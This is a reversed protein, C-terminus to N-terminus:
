IFPAHWSGDPDVFHPVTPPANLLGAFRQDAPHPAVVPAALAAAAAIVVLLLGLRTM